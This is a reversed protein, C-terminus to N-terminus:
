AGAFVQKRQANAANIRKTSFVSTPEDFEVYGEVWGEGIDRARKVHCRLHRMQGDPGAIKITAAQLDGIDVPTVFGTGGSNVDRTYLVYENREIGGTALTVAQEYTARPLLRREPGDYIPAAMAEPDYLFANNNASDSM